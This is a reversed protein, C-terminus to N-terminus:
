LYLAAIQRLPEKTTGSTAGEHIMSAIRGNIRDQAENFSGFGSAGAPITASNLWGENVYRYFNDGPLIEKSIFQTEVGWDGFGPKTKNAVASQSWVSCPTICILIAIITKPAMIRLKYMNTFNSYTLSYFRKM